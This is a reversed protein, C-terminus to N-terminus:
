ESYKYFAYLFQENLLDVIRSNLKRRDLGDAVFVVVSNAKLLEYDVWSNYNTQKVFCCLGLPSFSKM